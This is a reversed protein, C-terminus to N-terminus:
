KFMSRLWEPMFPLIDSLVEPYSIIIDRFSSFIHNKWVQTSTMIDDFLNLLGKITDFDWKKHLITIYYTIDAILVYSLDFDSMYMNEEDKWSLYNYVKPFSIQLIELFNKYVGNKFSIEEDITILQNELHTM